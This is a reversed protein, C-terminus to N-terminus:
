KNILQGKKVTARGESHQGPSHFRDELLAKMSADLRLRYEEDHTTQKERVLHNVFHQLSGPEDSDHGTDIFSRYHERSRYATNGPWGWPAPVEPLETISPDQQRNETSKGPKSEDKPLSVFERAAREEQSAKQLEWVKYLCFVVALAIGALYYAYDM